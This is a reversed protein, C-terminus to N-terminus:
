PVPVETQANFTFLQKPIFPMVLNAQYVSAARLMPASPTSNDPTLSVSISSTDAIGNLQALMASKLQDATTSPNLMVSRANTELSWRVSAACHLIWALQFAGLLSILLVPSVLAFELATAGSEARAFGRRVKGFM